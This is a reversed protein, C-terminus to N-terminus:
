GPIHERFQYNAFRQSMSKQRNSNAPRGIGLDDHTWFGYLYLENQPSVRYVLIMDHGIHAHRLGPNKAIFNGSGEFGTDNQGFQAQPDRRKIEMFRRFSRALAPVAKVKKAVTDYFDDSRWFKRDHGPLPVPADTVPRTSTTM